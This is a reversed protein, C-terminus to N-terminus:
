VIKNKKFSSVTFMPFDRCSGDLFAHFDHRCIYSELMGGLFVEIYPSSMIDDGEASDYGGGSEDDVILIRSSADKAQAALAPATPINTYTAPAFSQLTLTSYTSWLDPWDFQVWIQILNYCLAALTGLHLM